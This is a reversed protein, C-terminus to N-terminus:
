VNKINERIDFIDKIDEVDCIFCISLVFIDKSMPSVYCTRSMILKM